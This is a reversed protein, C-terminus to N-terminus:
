FLDWLHLSDMLNIGLVTKLWYLLALGVFGVAVFGGSLMVGSMTAGTMSQALGDAEVTEIVNHKRRLQAEIKAELIDFNLPKFIYDDAGASLGALVHQTVTDTSMFLFNMEAYRPGGEVIREILGPGSLVPMHVDCLVLDPRMEEIMHLGGLGDPAEAVHHGRSRLHAAVDSRIFRDDDIVLIEAM